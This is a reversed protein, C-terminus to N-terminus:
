RLDMYDLDSTLSFIERAGEFYVRMSGHQLDPISGRTDAIKRIEFIETLGDETPGKIWIYTPNEVNGMRVTRTRRVFTNTAPGLKNEYYKIIDDFGDAKFLTFLRTAISGDYQVIGKEGSYLHSSVDFSSEIAGPWETPTLCYAVTGRNKTFCKATTSLDDDSQGLKIKRGLGLSSKALRPDMPKTVAQPQSTPKPPDQVVSPSVVPESEQAPTDSVEEPDSTFTDKFFNGIRDFMGPEEDVHKAMVPEAPGEVTTMPDTPAKITAPAPTDVVPKELVVEPETTTTPTGPDAEESKFLNGLKEFFSPEDVPDSKTVAQEAQVPMPEVAPPSTEIVVSRSPEAKPAPAPKPTKVITQVPTSPLPTPAPKAPAVSTPAFPDTNTPDAPATYIPEKVPAPATETVTKIPESQPTEKQVPEPTETPEAMKTDPESVAPEVKEQPLEPKEELKQTPESPEDSKFLDSLKDLFSSEETTPAPSPQAVPEPAVPKPAEVVPAPQPAAMPAPKPPPPPTPEVIKVPRPPLKPAVPAPASPLAQPASPAVTTPAFPDTTQAQAPLSVALSVSLMMGFRFATNRHGWVKNEGM